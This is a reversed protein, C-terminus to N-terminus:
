LNFMVKYANQVDDSTASRVGKLQYELGLQQWKALAMDHYALIEVNEVNNLSNIFEGTKVLDNHDDSRTPVLVYRLWFKQNNKDLYKIFDLTNYNDKGTLKKCKKTDIHKIDVLFLDVYKMLEDVKEVNDKNNLNFTAGSTDIAVHMNIKKLKKALDIIFDMQLMPEGGSITVGGNNYYDKLKFIENFVEQSTKRHENDKCLSITEPNHCYQCRLGCGQLFVVFRTGPGDVNGMSEYQNVYGIVSM